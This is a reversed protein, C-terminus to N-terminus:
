EWDHIEENPTRRAQESRQSIAAEVETRRRAWRRRCREYLDQYEGQPEQIDPVRAVFPGHPGSKLVLHRQPLNKLIQALNKGGDLAQALKDADQSALQFGICTKSVKNKTM